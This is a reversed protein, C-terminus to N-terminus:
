LRKKETSKPVSGFLPVLQPLLILLIVSGAVLLSTRDESTLWDPLVSM